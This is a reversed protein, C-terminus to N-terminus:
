YEVINIYVVDKDMRWDTSMQAREVIQSNNIINSYVDPHRLIQIKKDKLYYKTTCNSPWLTARNKVKQPFVMSNELPAASTQMGVLLTLPNGKRWLRALMQQKRRTLKLWEWQHSSTDWQPKSKYKGSASHHRNADIHRRQLFTQEHHSKSSYYYKMQLILLMRWLGSKIFSSTNACTVCLLSSKLLVCRINVYYVFGSFHNILLPSFWKTEM